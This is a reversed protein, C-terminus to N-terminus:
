IQRRVLAMVENISVAQTIFVMALYALIGLPLLFFLSVGGLLYLIAAMAAAALVAKPLIGFRPMYHATRRISLIMLFVVLTETLLTSSAAGWYSFRPILFLNVSFNTLAGVAYIKALAKQKGLAILMNSFLASLFIIATAFILIKLVGASDAFGPGAILNIISNALILGGAALPVAFIILLDLGKQAVRKFELEDSLAYKSLLPMLLGVFMSPFFILSELIKYAASYIGVDGPPKMLSLMVTDLKFYVMVFIASMALPFSEKFIAKWREINWAFRFAIYKRAFFVILLFNALSSLTTTLVVSLFGMQRWLVFAILGIQALRGALEAMAVKEMRLRKQFVAILVQCNSLCWYGGAAVAVGLKTEYSYPFLWVIASSVAFIFFGAWFRLSFAASIIKEEDAGAKSIERLAISYLGLDALVSFIYLFAAITSFNGFKEQGLYRTILGLSFLALVTGLVRSVASIITNYAIKKALM